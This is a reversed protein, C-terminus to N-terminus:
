LLFHIIDIIQWISVGPMRHIIGFATNRCQLFNFETEGAVTATETSTIETCQCKMLASDKLGSAMFRNQFFGDFHCLIRIKLTINMIYATRGCIESLWGTLFLQCFSDTLIALTKKRLWTSVKLYIVCVINGKKSFQAFYGTDFFDKDTRTYTKIINDCIFIRYKHLFQDFIMDTSLKTNCRFM